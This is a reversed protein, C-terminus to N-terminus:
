RDSPLVTCNSVSISLSFWFVTSFASSVCNTLPERARSRKAMVPLPQNLKHDIEESADLATSGGQVGLANAHVDDRLVDGVGVDAAVHVALRILALLHDELGHQVCRLM